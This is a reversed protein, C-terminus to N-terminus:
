QDGAMRQQFLRTIAGGAQFPEYPFVLRWHTRGSEPSDDVLYTRPSVHETSVFWKDGIYFGKSQAATEPPPDIERQFLFSETRKGVQLVMRRLPAGHVPRVYGRAPLPEQIPMPWDEVSLVRADTVMDGVLPRLESWGVRLTHQSYERLVPRALCHIFRSPDDEDFAVRMQDVTTAPSDLLPQPATACAGLLLLPLISLAAFGPKM